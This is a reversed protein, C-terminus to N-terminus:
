CNIVHPPPSKLHHAEQYTLQLGYSLGISMLVHAIYVPSQTVFPLFLFFSPLSSLALVAFSSLYPAPLPDPLFLVSSYSGFVNIVHM